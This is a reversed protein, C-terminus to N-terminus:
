FPLSETYRNFKASVYKKLDLPMFSYYRGLIHQANSRLRGELYDRLSELILETAILTTFYRIQWVKMGKEVSLHKQYVIEGTDLKEEVKHISVGLNTYDGHYIAWLDSDLGRYEQTIGRHVNILGDPFAQIVAPSLRGTGFVVGFDARLGDLAALGDEGNVRGVIHAKGDKLDWPIDRFFRETEFAQEHEEFLPGIPFPPNVRASEFLYATLPIGARELSNLFYRHHLTDTSLVIIKKM